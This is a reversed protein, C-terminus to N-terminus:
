TNTNSSTYYSGASGGITIEFGEADALVGFGTRFTGPDNESFAVKAPTIRIGNGVSTGGGTIAVKYDTEPVFVKSKAGSNIIM